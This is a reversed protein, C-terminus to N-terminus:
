PLKKQKVRRFRRMLNPRASSFGHTVDESHLSLKVTKGKKLMIKEPSFAFRKGTIEVVPIGDAHARKTGRLALL